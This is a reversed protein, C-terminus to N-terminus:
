SRCAARRWNSRARESHPRFIGPPSASRFRRQGRYDRRLTRSSKPRARKSSITDLLSVKETFKMSSSPSRAAGGASGTKIVSVVLAGIQEAHLFRM